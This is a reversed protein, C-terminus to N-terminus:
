RCQRFMVRFFCFLFNILAFSVNNKSFLMRSCVQSEREILQLMLTRLTKLLPNTANSDSILSLDKSLVQLKVVYVGLCMHTGILFEAATLTALKFLDQRVSMNHELTQLLVDSSDVYAQSLWRQAARRLSVSALAQDYINIKTLKM